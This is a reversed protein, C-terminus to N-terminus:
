ASLSREILSRVSQDLDPTGNLPFWRLDDSEDSIVPPLVRPVLYLFQVDLHESM